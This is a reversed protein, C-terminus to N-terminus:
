FLDPYTSCIVIYSGTGVKVVCSVFHDITSSKKKKKKIVEITM